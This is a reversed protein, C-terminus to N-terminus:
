RVTRRTKRSSGDWYRAEISFTAPFGKPPKFVVKDKIHDHAETSFQIVPDKAGGIIYYVAFKKAGWLSYDITVSDTPGFANRNRQVNVEFTQGNPDGMRKGGTQISTSVTDRAMHGTSSTLELKFDMDKTPKFRYDGRTRKGKLNSWQKVVKGRFTDTITGKEAGEFDFFIVGTQGPLFGWVKNAYQVKSAQSRVNYTHIRPHVPKPIGRCSIKTSFSSDGVKANLSHTGDPKKLWSLKDARVKFTQSWTAGPARAARANDIYFDDVKRNDLLLDMKWHSKDTFRSPNSLRVEIDFPMGVVVQGPYRGDNPIAKLSLIKLSYVNVQFRYATEGYRNKAQVVVWGSRKPLLRFDGKFKGDRLPVRTVDGSSEQVLKATDAGKIDVYVYMKAGTPIHTQRPKITVAPKQNITQFGPQVRAVTENPKWHPTIDPRFKAKITFIGSPRRIQNSGTGHIVLVVYDGPVTNNLITYIIPRKNIPRSNHIVYKPNQSKPPKLVIRVNGTLGTPRWDVDMKGGVTFVQKAKPKIVEINGSFLTSAMLIFFIFLIATKKM